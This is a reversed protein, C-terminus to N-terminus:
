MSTPPVKVPNNYRMRLVIETV